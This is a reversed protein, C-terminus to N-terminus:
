LPALQEIEKELEDFEKAEEPNHEPDTAEQDDRDLVSYSITEDNGYVGAVVGGQVEIVVRPQHSQPAEEPIKEPNLGALDVDEAVKEITDQTWENDPNLLLDTQEQDADGYLSVVVNYALIELEERTMSAVKAKLQALTKM